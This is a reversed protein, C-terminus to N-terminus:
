RKEEAEQSLDVWKSRCLALQYRPLVELPNRSTEIKRM